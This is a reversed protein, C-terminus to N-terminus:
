NLSDKYMNEVLGGTLFAHLQRKGTKPNLGYMESELPSAHSGGNDSWMTIENEFSGPVFTDKPQVVAYWWKGDEKLELIKM